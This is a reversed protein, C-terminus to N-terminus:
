EFIDVLGNRIAFVAAQTRDSVGIKKFINFIHNKVTRESIELKLAIEKNYMGVALNKLVDLERRTLSHIREENNESTNKQHELYFMLEPQIYTKGSLVLEIADVLCDFGSTKLMFGDIGIRVARLFDKNEECGTLVIVKTKREGDQNLRELVDFGDQEPMYLDLILLDPHVESLLSLCISGTGAEAVVRYNSKIELLCKLAERFISHDDALM